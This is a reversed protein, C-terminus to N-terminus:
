PERDRLSHQDITQKIKKRRANELAREAKSRGHV